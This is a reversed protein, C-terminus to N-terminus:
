ERTNVAGVGVPVAWFNRISRVYREFQGHVEQVAEHSALDKRYSEIDSVEALDIFQYDLREEGTAPGNLRISEYRLISPIRETAPYDVTRVFDEYEDPPVGPQLQSFWLVITM